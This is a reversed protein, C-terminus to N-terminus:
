DGNHVYMSSIRRHMTALENVLWEETAKADALIKKIEEDKAELQDELAEIRDLQQQTLMNALRSQGQVQQAIAHETELAAADKIKNAMEEMESDMTQQLKALEAALHEQQASQLQTERALAENESEQAAKLETAM